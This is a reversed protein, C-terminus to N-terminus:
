FQLCGILGVIIFFIFFHKDTNINTFQTLLLMICLFLHIAGKISRELSLMISGQGQMLLLFLQFRQFSQFKLPTEPALCWSRPPDWHVVTM